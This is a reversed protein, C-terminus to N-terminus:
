KIEKVEVLEDANGVQSNDRHAHSCHAHTGFWEKKIFDTDVHSSGGVLFVRKLTVEFVKQDPLAKKIKEAHSLSKDMKTTDIITTM